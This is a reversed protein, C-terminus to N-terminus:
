KKKIFSFIVIIIAIVIFIWLYSLYGGGISKMMTKLSWDSMTAKSKTCKNSETQLEKIKDIIALDKSQLEPPCTINVDSCMGTVQKRGYSCECAGESLMKTCFLWDYLNKNDCSINVVGSDIYLEFMDCDENLKKKTDEDICEYNLIREVCSSQTVEGTFPEYTGKNISVYIFLFLTFILLQNINM